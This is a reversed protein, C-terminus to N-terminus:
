LLARVAGNGEQAEWLTGKADFHHGLAKVAKVKIDISDGLLRYTSVCEQCCGQSPLSIGACSRGKDQGDAALRGANARQIEENRVDTSAGFVILFM